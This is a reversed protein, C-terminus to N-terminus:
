LNSVGGEVGRTKAFAKLGKEQKLPVKLGKFVWVTSLLGLARQANGEGEIEEPLKPMKWLKTLEEGQRGQDM